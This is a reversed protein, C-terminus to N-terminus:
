GATASSAAVPLYKRVIAIFEDVPAPKTIFDTFGNALAKHKDDRHAFASIAIIPLADLKSDGRMKRIAEHGSCVPLQLDLLILDPRESQALRIAELGDAVALVEFGELRLLDTYLRRNLDNDEALLIKTM